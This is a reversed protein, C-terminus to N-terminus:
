WRDVVVQRGPDIWAIYADMKGKQKKKLSYLHKSPRWAHWTHLRYTTITQQRQLMSMIKLM